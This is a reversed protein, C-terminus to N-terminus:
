RIIVPPYCLFLKPPPWNFSTEVAKEHARPRRSVFPRGSPTSSFTTVATCAQNSVALYSSHFAFTHKPTFIFFTKWSRPIRTKSYQLDDQKFSCSLWCSYVASNHLMSRPLPYDYEIQNWQVTSLAMVIPIYGNHQVVARVFYHYRRTRGLLNVRECRWSKSCVVM